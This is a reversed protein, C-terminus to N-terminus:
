NFRIDECYMEAKIRRVGEATEAALKFIGLHSLSLTGVTQTGKTNTFNILGDLEDGDDSNGNIVFDEHWGVWSDLGPGDSLTLKLNPIDIRTQDKVGEQFSQKITFAEIKSVRSSSVGGVEIKAIVEKPNFGQSSIKGTGKKNNTLEPAFKLTMYAPDKAAIDLAPFGIETLLANSFGGISTVRFDADTATITGSRLPANRDLSDKIWNYLGKSMGTSAACKITIENFKVGGIHKKAIGDSGMKETVVDATAHGGEVSEVFGCPIGDLDLVFHSGAYSPGFAGATTAKAAPETTQADAEGSRWASALAAAGLTAAGTGLFGARTRGAHEGSEAM